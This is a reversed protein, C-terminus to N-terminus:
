QGVDMRAVGTMGNRWGEREGSRMSASTLLLSDRQKTGSASWVKIQLRRHTRCDSM